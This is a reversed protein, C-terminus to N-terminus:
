PGHEEVLRRYIAEHRRMLVERNGRGRITAMAQQSMHGQAPTHALVHAVAVGLARPAGVPVLLGNQQPSIWERLSPVDSVVPVVGCAMAELVSLPTGDSSPVSVAVDAVQLFQAIARDHPLDHVYRVADGGQAAQALEKFRALLDPDENYVFVVFQAAPVQALILPIAQAVDLPNYIPQFARISAVVPGAALGLDEKLRRRAEGDLPRFIGMDVGWPAVEVRQPDAGLALAAEALAASVCTVYDARRLVWRALWRQARSRRPNVLLDSGWATVEFPHYGAAAALWGASSVQHAHLVDPQIQRVLRRVVEAWVMYRLKRRNTRRTLDHFIVGPPLERRPPKEGILHVQYGRQAFYGVWRHTHISNPNAIVCLRLM